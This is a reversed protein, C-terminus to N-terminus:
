GLVEGVGIDAGVVVCLSGTRTNRMSCLKTSELLGNGCLGEYPCSNVNCYTRMLADRCTDTRCPSSCACWGFHAVAPFVIDM